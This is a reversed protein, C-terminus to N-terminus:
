TETSLWVGLGSASWGFGSSEGSAGSFSFVIVAACSSASLSWSMWPKTRRNWGSSVKSLTRWITRSPVSVGWSMSLRSTSLLAASKSLCIMPACTNRDFSRPPVNTSAM